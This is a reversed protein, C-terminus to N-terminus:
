ATHAAYAQCGPCLKSPPDAWNVGCDDCRRRRPAKNEMEYPCSHECAHGYDTKIQCDPYICDQAAM